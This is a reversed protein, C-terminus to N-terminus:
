TVWGVGGWGVGPVNKPLVDRSKTPQKVIDGKRYVILTFCAIHQNCIARFAIGPIFPYDFKVDVDNMDDCLQMLVAFQLPSFRDLFM